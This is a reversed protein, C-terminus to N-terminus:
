KCFFAITAINVMINIFFYYVSAPNIHMLFHRKRCCRFLRISEVETTPVYFWRCEYYCGPVPFWACLGMGNWRRVAKRKGLVGAGSHYLM